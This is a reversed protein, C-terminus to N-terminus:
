QLTFVTNHGSESHMIREVARPEVSVALSEQKGGYIVAPLRGARRLQRAANKGKHERPQAEVVLEQM